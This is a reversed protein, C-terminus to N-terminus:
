GRNSRDISTTESLVANSTVLIIIVEPLKICTSFSGLQNSGMQGKTSRLNLLVHLNFRRVIALAVAIICRGVRVTIASVSM